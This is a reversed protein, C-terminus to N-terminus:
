PCARAIQPNTSQALLTGIASDIALADAACPEAFGNGTLYSNQRGLRGFWTVNTQVAFNDIPEAILCNGEQFGVRNASLTAKLNALREATAEKRILQCAEGESTVKEIVLGDAFVFSDVISHTGFLGSVVERNYRILLSTAGHAAAVSVLLAQLLAVQISISFRSKRM